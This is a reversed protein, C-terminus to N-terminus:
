VLKLISGSNKGILPLSNGYKNVRLRRGPMDKVGIIKISEVYFFGRSKLKL